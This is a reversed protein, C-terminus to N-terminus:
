IMPPRTKLCYRIDANILISSVANGDGDEFEHHLYSAEFTYTGEDQHFSWEGDDDTLIGYDQGDLLIKAGEV